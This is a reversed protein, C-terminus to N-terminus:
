RTGPRQDMWELLSELWWKPNRGVYKTPPFTPDNNALRSLTRVSVGIVRAAEKPGVYRCPDGPAPSSLCTTM